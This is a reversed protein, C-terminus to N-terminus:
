RDDAVRIHEHTIEVDRSRRAFARDFILAVGGGLALGVPICFLVLFGFVQGQSYALGIDSINEADGFAFTLIMALVVGFGAGLLFFVSYRPARRLQAHERQPSDPASM